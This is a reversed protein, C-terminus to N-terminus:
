RPMIFSWQFRGKSRQPEFRSGILHESVQEVLLLSPRHSMPYAYKPVSVIFILTSSPYQPEGHFLILWTEMNFYGPSAHLLLKAASCRVGRHIAGKLDRGNSDVVCNEDQLVNVNCVISRVRRSDSLSQCDLMVMPTGTSCSVESSLAWSISISRVMWALRITPWLSATDATARATRRARTPSLSGLRGMALKM